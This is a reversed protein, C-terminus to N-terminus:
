PPGSYGVINDSTNNEVNPERHAIAEMFMDHTIVDVARQTLADLGM